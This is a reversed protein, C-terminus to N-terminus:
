QTSLTFFNSSYGVTLLRHTAATRNSVDLKRFISRLHNKVTYESIYLHKGIEHNKLGRSLLLAVEVERQSFGFIQLAERMEREKDPPCICVADLFRYKDM